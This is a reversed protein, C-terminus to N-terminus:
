KMFKIIDPIMNYVNIEKDDTDFIRIKDSKDIKGIARKGDWSSILGFFKIGKKTYAEFEKESISWKNKPTEKIFDSLEDYSEFAIIDHNNKDKMSRSEPFIRVYKKLM